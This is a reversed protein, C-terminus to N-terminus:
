NVNKTQLAKRVWYTKILLCGTKNTLSRMSTNDQNIFMRNSIRSRMSYESKTRTNWMIGTNIWLTQQSTRNRILNVAVFSRTDIFKLFFIQTLPIKPRQACTGCLFFIKWLHLFLYLSSINRILYLQKKEGNKPTNHSYSSTHTHSLSLSCIYIYINSHTCTNNNNM